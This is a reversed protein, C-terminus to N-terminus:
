CDGNFSRIPGIRPGPVFAGKPTTSLSTLLGPLSAKTVNAYPFGNVTPKDKGQFASLDDESSPMVKSPLPVVNRKQAAGDSWPFYQLVSNVPQDNEYVCEDDPFLDIPSGSQDYLQVGVLPNGAADYPFINTVRRGNAYISEELGSTQMSAQDYGQSHGQVYGALYNQSDGDALGNAVVPLMVVALVNLAVLLVRYAARGAWRDLVPLRQRGLQVSVAILALTILGGDVSDDPVVALAWGGTWLLVSQAAVYARLVWWAPQLSTLLGAGDGPLADLMQHWRSATSAFMRDVWEGFAQRTRTRTAPALGAAARLEAAYSIPESLADVGREAVLDTLDAELGDTIELLEDAELDALEARVAAVFALVEPAIVITNM